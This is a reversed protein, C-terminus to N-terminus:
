ARKRKYILFYVLGFTTAAVGIFILSMVPRYAFWALGAVIFSIVFALVGAIISVGFGIINGVIPIIDGIVELINFLMKIGFFILLFGVVRLINTLMNNASHEMKFMEEKTLRGKKIVSIYTEESTLYPKFSKGSQASLISYEGVPIEEYSVRVDGIQPNSISGRGIFIYDTMVSHNPFNKADLKASSLDMKKFETLSEILGESLDFAGVTVHGSNQTRSEIPMTKPNVKTQDKFAGSKILNPYWDQEYTYSKTTTESGGVNKKKKSSENEKWQFMEVKRKMKIGTSKMNFEADFLTDNTELLGTLHVLKNENEPKVEDTNISVTVSEGEELGRATKVARGENWWLLVIAGIIMVFGFGIGKISGSLRSFWSTTTTETFESM